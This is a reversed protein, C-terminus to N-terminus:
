PSLGRGGAVARVDLEGRLNSQGQWLLEPSSAGSTDPELEGAYATLQVQAAAVAVGEAELHLRVRSVGRSAYDYYPAPDRVGCGLTLLTCTLLSTRPGVCSLM